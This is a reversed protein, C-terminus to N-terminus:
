DSGGGPPAMSIIPALPAASISKIAPAVRKFLEGVEEPPLGEPLIKFPDYSAGRVVPDILFFYTLEGDQPVQAKIVKWHAAQERRAPKDSRALVEKVKGMTVEFEIGAAEAVRIIVLIRDADFVFPDSEAPKAPAQPAQAFSLPGSAQAAVVAGILLGIAFVRATRRTM